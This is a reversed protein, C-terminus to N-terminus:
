LPRAVDLVTEFRRSHAVKPMGRAQGQPQALLYRHYYAGVRTCLLCKALSESPALGLVVRRGSETREPKEEWWATVDFMQEGSKLMLLHRPM